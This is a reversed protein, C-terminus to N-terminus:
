RTKYHKKYTLSDEVKEMVSNGDMDDLICTICYIRGNHPTFVLSNELMSRCVVADKTHICHVCGSPSCFQKNDGGVNESLQALASPFLSSKVCDWDIISSKQACHASPLLLYHVMPHTEKKYLADIDNKLKNLDHDILIRLLTIQFRSAMLVQNASLYITGTYVMNVSVSGRSVDLHFDLDEFDSKPDCKMLLIIDRLSVNYEFNQKLGISYCHYLEEESSSACHSVLETPFYNAIEDEYPIDGFEQADDAEEVVSLPLLTDTLDGINHLKKCAELCVIKKLMNKQGRVCITQIPCSKPLHLTCREEDFIFRPAPRFYGDSPLHSCYFYILAVSSNLTVVAGTTEVRYFDEDYMERECPACPFSGYRLSEQRMIDGSALHNKVKSLTSADGGQKRARGRSQIFSCVTASPDFRIVLNCSQVDLGEELIQTAVIINVTGKRFDDIIDIQKKRSQFQLGSGNGAMYSTKWCSLESVQSLLSQLVIATIVREVFIICRLDKIM